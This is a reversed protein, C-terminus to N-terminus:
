PCGAAVYEYKPESTAQVALLTDSTAPITTAPAVTARAALREAASVANLVATEVVVAVFEAGGKGGIGPHREYYVPGHRDNEDGPYFDSGTRGGDRPM